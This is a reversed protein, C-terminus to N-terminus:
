FRGEHSMIGKQLLATRDQLSGMAVRRGVQHPFLM